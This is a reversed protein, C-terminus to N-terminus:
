ASPPTASASTPWAARARNAFSLLPKEALLHLAAGAGVSAAIMAAFVAMAPLGGAIKAVISIVPYHILYLSYSADGLFTLARPVATIQGESECRVSGVVLLLASLGYLLTSPADNRLFVGQWEGVGTALFGVFGAVALGLAPLRIRGAALWAAFMGFLFLINIISLAYTAGGVLCAGFWLLMAVAGLPRNLVLLGFMAYFLVEHFLTWAVALTPNVDGVLLISGIVVPADTEHGAGLTPVVLYIALLAGLVVWYVPYIRTFRKVSYRAFREPRGIENRHVWLIIFGSLVFFFQVGAHGWSFFDGFLVRGGYKESGITGAAHFLVVLLAAVGRWVQLTELKQRVAIEM